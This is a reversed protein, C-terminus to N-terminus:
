RALLCEGWVVCTEEEWGLISLFNLVIVRFKYLIQRVQNNNVAGPVLGLFHESM